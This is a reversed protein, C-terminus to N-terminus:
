DEEEKEVEANSFRVVAIGLHFPFVFNEDFEIL